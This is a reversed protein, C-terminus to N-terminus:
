TGAATFVPGAEVRNVSDYNTVVVTMTATPMKGIQLADPEWKQLYGYMAWTSHDPFRITITDAPNNILVSVLSNILDPDYAAKLAINDLKKLSQPSMTRWASNLMTTTDIPEGGDIAPPKPDIEWFWAGPSSAFTLESQYGDPIKYAGGTPPTRATPTPAVFMRRFRGRHPFPKFVPQLDEILLLRDFPMALM